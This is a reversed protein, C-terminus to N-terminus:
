AKFFLILLTEESNMFSLLLKPAPSIYIFILISNFIFIFIFYFNVYLKFLTKFYSRCNSTIDDKSNFYIDWLIELGKLTTGMLVIRKETFALNNEHINLYYFINEVFNYFNTSIESFNSKAIKTYFLYNTIEKDNRLCSSNKIWSYFINSDNVNDAPNVVFLEWLSDIQSHSLSSCSVKLLYELFVFNSKIYESHTYLQGSIKMSSINDDGMEKQCMQHYNNLSIIM